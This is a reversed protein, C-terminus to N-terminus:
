MSLLHPGLRMEAGKKTKEKTYKTAVDSLSWGVVGAMVVVVM